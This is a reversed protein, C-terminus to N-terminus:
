PRVKETRGPRATECCKSAAPGPIEAPRDLELRIVAELSTWPVAGGIMRGNVFATPTQQIQLRRGADLDNEVEKATAHTDLCTSLKAIDLNQEKAIVLTKEKVNGPNVEEQHEFFWDHFAWFAAPKQGAVCHSAEAAARAWPHVSDLPFDKFIVRVNNAYKQPINDRVTKAFERCYPCEFDSFVVMTVKANAPGFSPGDTPLNQLTDLFPNQHLDWVAGNLFREGDASVYFVRDAVKRGSMSLHVLVRFLNKYASPTPDDITLQVDSTFGEIYRAYIDLKQKDIKPVSQGGAELIGCATLAVVLGFMRLM